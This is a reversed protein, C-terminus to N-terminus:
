LVPHTFYDDAIQLVNRFQFNEWNVERLIEM